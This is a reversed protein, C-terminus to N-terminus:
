RRILHSIGTLVDQRNERVRGHGELEVAVDLVLRHVLGPPVVRFRDGIAELRGDDPVNRAWRRVLQGFLLSRLPQGRLGPPQVEEAVPLAALREGGLEGEPALGLVGRAPLVEACCVVLVPGVVEELPDDVVPLTPWLLEERLLAVVPLDARERELPRDVALRVAPLHGDDGAAAGRGADASLAASV